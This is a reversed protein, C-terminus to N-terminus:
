RVRAALRSGLRAFGERPFDIRERVRPGDAVEFRREDLPRLFAEDGASSLVLGGRAAHIEATM